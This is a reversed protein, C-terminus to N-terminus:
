LQRRRLNATPQPLPHHNQQPHPRHTQPIHHLTLLTGQGRVPRIAHALNPEPYLATHWGTALIIIDYLRHAIQWRHNHRKLQTIPYLHHRINPHELLTNILARPNLLGTQQYRLQHNHHSLHQPNLLTQNALQQHRQKTKNNTAHAHIPCPTFVSPNQQRLQYYHRHAHHWASLHYRRMPTDHSDPQLYPIALPVHSAPPHTKCHHYLDITHTHALAHATAAGAIGAGIIAIRPKKPANTPHM